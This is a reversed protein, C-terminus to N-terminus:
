PSTWDPPYGMLWETWSPNLHGQLPATQGWWRVARDLTIPVHQKGEPDQYLRQNPVPMGGARSYLIRDPGDKGLVATPTPWEVYVGEDRAM